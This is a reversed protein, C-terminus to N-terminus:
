IDSEVIGSEEQPSLHLRVWKQGQYFEAEFRPKGLVRRWLEEKATTRIQLDREAVYLPVWRM